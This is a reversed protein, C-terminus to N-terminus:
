DKETTLTLWLKKEGYNKISGGNAAVYGIGGKSMATEKVVIAKAIEKPGVTDIQVRVRGWAPTARVDNAEGRSGQTVTSVASTGQAVGRFLEVVVGGLRIAAGVASRPVCRRPM